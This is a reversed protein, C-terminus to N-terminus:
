QAVEEPTTIWTAKVADSLQAMDFSAKLFKGVSETLQILDRKLLDNEHRAAELEKEVRFRAVRENSIEDFYRRLAGQKQRIERDRVELQSPLDYYFVQMVKQIFTLRCM